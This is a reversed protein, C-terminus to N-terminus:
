TYRESIILQFREASEDSGMEDQFEKIAQTSNFVGRQLENYKNRRIETTKGLLICGEIDSEYNKSTDGCWNGIHIRIGTRDTVGDCIWTGQPYHQSRTFIFYYVGTPICSIGNQNDRWPAEGTCFQKGCPTTLTGYTGEDGTQTRILTLQRM